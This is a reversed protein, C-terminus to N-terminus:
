RGVIHNALIDNLAVSFLVNFRQKEDSKGLLDFVISAAGFVVADTYNDAIWSSFTEKATDPKTLYTVNLQNLNPTRVNVVFGAQYYVDQALSGYENFLNSADLVSLQRANPFTDVALIKRLREFPAETISLQHVNLDENYHPTVVVQRVDPIFEDANHAKITAAKVAYETETILDPRNTITTVSDVLEQMTVAM